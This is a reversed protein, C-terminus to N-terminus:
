GWERRLSRHYTAGLIGVALLLLALSAIYIGLIHRDALMKSSDASIAVVIFFVWPLLTTAVLYGVLAWIRKIVFIGTSVAYMWVLAALGIAMFNYSEAVSGGERPFAVSLAIAIVLPILALSQDLALATFLQRVLNKRSVPRLSEVPLGGCRRHWVAVPILLYIAGLQVMCGMWVSTPDSFFAGVGMLAQIALYFLVYMGGFLIANRPRFANGAQWLRAMQWNSDGRLRDYSEKRDVLRMWWNKTEYARRQQQPDWPSLGPRLSSKEYVRRTLRPLQVFAWALLVCEGFLILLAFFAFDGRLFWVLEGAIAPPLSLMAMPWWFIAGALFGLLVGVNRVIPSPSQLASLIALCATPIGLAIILGPFLAIGLLWLGIAGVLSGGLSILIAALQHPRAYGPVVAATQVVFHAWVQVAVIVAIAATFFLGLLLVGQWATPYSSPYLQVGPLSPITRPTEPPWQAFIAELSPHGALPQLSAPTLALPPTPLPPGTEIYHDTSGTTMVLYKLNPIKAIVALAQPTLGFRNVRLMRLEVLQSVEDPHSLLLRIPIELERLKPGLATWMGKPIAPAQLALSQLSDLSQVEKVKPLTLNSSELELTTLNVLPTLDPFENENPDRTRMSILDTMLLSDLEAPAHERFHDDWGRVSISALNGTLQIEPAISINASRPVFGMAFLGIALLLAIAAFLLVLPRHIYTRFVQFLQTKM